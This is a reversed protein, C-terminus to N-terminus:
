PQNLMESVFNKPFMELDAVYFSVGPHVGFDALHLVDRHLLGNVVWANDAADLTIGLVLPVTELQCVHDVVAGVDVINDSLATHLSFLEPLRPINQM